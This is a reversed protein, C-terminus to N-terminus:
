RSGLVLKPSLWGLLQALIDPEPEPAIGLQALCADLGRGYRNQSLALPKADNVSDALEEWSADLDISEGIKLASRIDAPSPTRGPALGHIVIQPTGLKNQSLWGLLDNAGRVSPFRQNCCLFFRAAPRIMDLLAHQRSFPGYHLVITTCCGRLIQLLAAFSSAELLPVEAGFDACLPMIYLGSRPERALASELLARDVRAVERVADVVGFEPKLGLAVGAQTAPVSLDIYLTMEQPQRMAARVALNLAFDQDQECELGSLVGAIKARSPASTDATRDLCGRIALCLHLAEAERDVFDAAGARLAALVLQASMENGLVIVPVAPFKSKAAEIKEFATQVGSRVDSDLLIANPDFTGGAGESSLRDLVMLSATGDIAGRVKSTLVSDSSIMLLRATM